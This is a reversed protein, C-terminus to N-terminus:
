CGRRRWRRGAELGLRAQTIAMESEDELMEEDDAMAAWWRPDAARHPV